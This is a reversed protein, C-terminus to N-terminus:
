KVKSKIIQEALENNGFAYAVIIYTAEESSYNMYKSYMGDFIKLLREIMQSDDYNLKRVISRFEEVLGLNVSLLPDDKPLEFGNLDCYFTEALLPFADSYRKEEILFRYMTYKINRYYGMRNCQLYELSLRNFEGWLLDRYRMNPHTHVLVSMEAMSIDNFKHRHMYLVYENKQIEEKGLDTLKGDKSFGREELSAILTPVDDVDYERKWFRSITAGACYKELYSLMLIEYPYLGAGDVQYNKIKPQLESIRHYEPHRQPERHERNQTQPEIKIESNKKKLLDLLWM